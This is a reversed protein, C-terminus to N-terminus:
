PISGVSLSGVCSKSSPKNRLGVKGEQYAGDAAQLIEQGNRYATFSDGAVRIQFDNEQNAWDSSVKAHALRIWKGDVRKWFRVFNGKSNYTFHYGNQDDQARFWVDLGTNKNNDVVRDVTVAELSVVFDDSGLDSSCSNLFTLAQNGNGTICAKNQEIGFSEPSSGTWDGLDDGDNFTFSCGCGAGGLGQVAQCYVQGVSTGMLSLILIIVLSVGVFILAYEVLGQGNESTKKRM